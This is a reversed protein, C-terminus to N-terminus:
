GAASPTQQAVAPQPANQGVGGVIQFQARSPTGSTDSGRADRLLAVIVYNDPAAQPITVQASINGVKDPVVEALVPGDLANWRLQVGTTVNSPMRYSSGTVTIVDGAKGATSSLNLTALNTCAFAAAGAIVSAAAAAGFVTTVKKRLNM